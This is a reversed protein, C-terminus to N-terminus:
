RGAALRKEAADSIAASMPTPQYGGAQLYKQAKKLDHSDNPLPGASPNKKDGTIKSHAVASKLDIEVWNGPRVRLVHPVFEEMWHAPAEPPIVPQSEKYPKILTKPRKSKIKPTAEAMRDVSQYSRARPLNSGERMRDVSRASQIRRM